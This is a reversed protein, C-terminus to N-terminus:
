VTIGQLIQNKNIITNAFNFQKETGAQRFGIYWIVGHIHKGKYDDKNEYVARCIKLIREHEISKVEPINEQIEAIQERMVSIEPNEKIPIIKKIPKKKVAIKPMTALQIEIDIANILVKKHEPCLNVIKESIMIDEGPENCFGMSGNEWQEYQCSKLSTHNPLTNAIKKLVTM